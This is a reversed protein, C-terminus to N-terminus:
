SSTGSSHTCPAVEVLKADLTKKVCVLEEAVMDFQVRLQRHKNEWVAEVGARGGHFRGTALARVNVSFWSTQHRDKQLVCSSDACPLPGRSLVEWCANQMSAEKRIFAPNKKGDIKDPVCQPTVRTGGVRDRKLTDALPPDAFGIFSETDSGDCTASHASNFQTPQNPSVPTLPTRPAATTQIPAAAAGCQQVYAAQNQALTACPQQVYPYQHQAYNSSYDTYPQQEDSYLNYLHAPSGIYGNAGAYVLM